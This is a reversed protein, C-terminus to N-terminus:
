NLRWCVAIESTQIEDDSEKLIIKRMKQSTIIVLSKGAIYNKQDFIITCIVIKIKCRFNVLLCLM